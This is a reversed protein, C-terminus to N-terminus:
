QASLVPLSGTLLKLKYGLINSRTNPVKDSQRRSEKSRLRLVIATCYSYQFYSSIIQILISNPISKRVLSNRRVAYSLLHDGEKILIVTASLNEPYSGWNGSRSPEIRDTPAVADDVHGVHQRPRHRGPDHHAAGVPRQGESIIEGARVAPHGM